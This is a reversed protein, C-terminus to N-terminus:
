INKYKKHMELLLPRMSYIIELHLFAKTLNIQKSFLIQTRTQFKAGNHLIQRQGVLM